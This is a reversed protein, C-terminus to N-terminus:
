CDVRLADASEIFSRKIPIESNLTAQVGQVDRARARQAVRRHFAVIDSFTAKFARADEERESPEPLANLRRELQEFRRTMKAFGNAIRALVVDKEGSLDSLGGGEAYIAGAERCIADASDVFRVLLPDPEDSPGDPKASGCGASTLGFATTILVAIGRM